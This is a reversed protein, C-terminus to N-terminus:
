EYDFFKITLQIPLRREVRLRRYAPHKHLRRSQMERELRAEAEEQSMPRSIEERQGTLTSIGTIVYQEQKM